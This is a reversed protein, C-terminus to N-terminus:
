SRRGALRSGAVSPDRTTQTRRLRCRAAASREDGARVPRLGTGPACRCSRYVIPGSWRFRMLRSRTIFDTHNSSCIPCAQSKSFRCILSGASALASAPGLAYKRCGLLIGRTHKSCRSVDEPTRTGAHVPVHGLKSGSSGTQANDWQYRENSGVHGPQAEIFHRRDGQSM